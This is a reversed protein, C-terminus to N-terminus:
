PVSSSSKHALYRYLILEGSRFAITRRNWLELEQQLARLNNKHTEEDTTLEKIQDETNGWAANIMELYPATIDEKIRITFGAGELAETMTEPTLPCPALPEHTAWDIM